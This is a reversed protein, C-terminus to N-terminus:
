DTTKTYELIIEYDVPMGYLMNADIITLSVDNVFQEVAIYLSHDPNIYNLFVPINTKFIDDRAVDRYKVMGYSNVLKDVFTTSANLLEVSSLSSGTFVKRYIPKGNIWTGGTLQETTSYSNNAVTPKPEYGIEGTTSLTLTKNFEINETSNQIENLDLSVKGGLKLTKDEFSGSILKVSENQSNKNGIILDENNYDIINNNGIIIKNSYDTALYEDNFNDYNNLNNIGIIINNRGDNNRLNYNGIINNNSIIETIINKDSNYNGFINNSIINTNLIQFNYNGFINNETNQKYNANSFNGFGFNNINTTINYGNANNYGFINIYSNQNEFGTLNYKGFIFANNINTTNQLSSDTLFISNYTSPHFKSTLIIGQINLASSSTNGKAVVEDLTPTQIYESKQVMGITGDDKVIALRQYNNITGDDITALETNSSLRLPLSFHFNTSLNGYGLNKIFINDKIEHNVIYDNLTKEYYKGGIFLNNTIKKNNDVTESTLDINNGIVITDDYDTNWFNINNGIFLTKRIENYTSNENGINLGSIYNQLGFNIPKNKVNSFILSENYKGVVVDDNVVISTSTVNNNSQYSCIDNLTLNVGMNPHTEYNSLLNIGNIERAYFNVPATINYFESVNQNNKVGLYIEAFTDIVPGNIGQRQIEKKVYYFSKEESADVDSPLNTVFHFGIKSM